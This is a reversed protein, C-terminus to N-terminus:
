SPFLANFSCGAECFSSVVLGILPSKAPTQGCREILYTNIVSDFLHYYISNNMHSYQDNDSRDFAAHEAHRLRMRPFCAGDLVIHSFTFM